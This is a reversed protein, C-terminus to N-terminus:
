HAFYSLILSHLYSDIVSNFTKSKNQPHPPGEASKINDNKYILDALQGSREERQNTM